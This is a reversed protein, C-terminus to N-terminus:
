LSPETYTLNFKEALRKFELEWYDIRVQDHAMQFAELLETTESDNIQEALELQSLSSGEMEPLYEDDSILCGVACKLGDNGRYACGAMGLHSQAQQKRLHNVMTDFLHQRGKAVHEAFNM